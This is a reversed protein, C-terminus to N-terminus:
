QELLIEIKDIMSQEDYRKAQQLANDVMRRYDKEDTLMAEIHRAIDDMQQVDIKYGNEGNEVMEAIGGETPVIVPLGARMAELATMGFTEIVRHRDSLNLVVSARNYFALVDNQRPYIRLNGEGTIDDLHNNSLYRDKNEKTNNIVLVFKYRPMRQSLEIFEKTGKYSKLSGLMLVTKREFAAEADPNLKEVFAKPLANPVVTVKEKRHLFSAQYESVCIIEHALQEMTAALAKYFTGKIFANEHYHYVVRKGMLRGAFAPGVPLLTNIYFTTNRAFLWRLAWFFTFLQVQTYRLITVPNASFRYAYYHLHCDDTDQLEDLVGGRSTVLDVRYGKRLLGELVMRLVKPSGSYDNYLHFCVIRKMTKIIESSRPAIKRTKM